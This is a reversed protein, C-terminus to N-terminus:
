SNRGGKILVGVYLTGYGNTGLSRIGFDGLRWGHAGEANLLAEFEESDYSAVVKYQYRNM